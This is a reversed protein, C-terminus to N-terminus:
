MKVRYAFLAPAPSVTEVAVGGFSVEFLSSGRNWLTILIAGVDCHEYRIVRANCKSCNVATKDKSFNVSQGCNFPCNFIGSM